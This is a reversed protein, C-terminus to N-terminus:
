NNTDKPDGVASDAMVAPLNEPQLGGSSGTKASHRQQYKTEIM